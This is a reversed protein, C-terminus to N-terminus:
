CSSESHTPPRQQMHELLLYTVRVLSYVTSYKWIEPQSPKCVPVLKRFGFAAAFYPIITGSPPVARFAVPQAVRLLCISAGGHRGPRIRLLPGTTGDALLSGPACDGEPFTRKWARPRISLSVSGPSNGSQHKVALHYRSRRMIRMLLVEMAGSM